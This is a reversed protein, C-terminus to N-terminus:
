HMWLLYHGYSDQECIYVPGHLPYNAQAAAVCTAYSPYYGVLVFGSGGPPSAAAPSAAVGLCLTLAALASVALTALRKKM